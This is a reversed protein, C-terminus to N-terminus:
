VIQDQFEGGGSAESARGNGCGQGTSCCGQGVAKERYNIPTEGTVGLPPGSPTLHSSSPFNTAFDFQLFIIKM